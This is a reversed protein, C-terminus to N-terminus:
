IIIPFALGLLALGGIFAGGILRRVFLSDRQQREPAIFVLDGTPGAM